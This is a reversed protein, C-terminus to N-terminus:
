RRRICIDQQLPELPIREEAPFFCIVSFLDGEDAEFPISLGVPATWNLYGSAGYKTSNEVEREDESLVEM